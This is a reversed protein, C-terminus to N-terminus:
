KAQQVVIATEGFYIKFVSLSNQGPIQSSELIITKPSHEDHGCADCQELYMGICAQSQSMSGPKCREDNKVHTCIASMLVRVYVQFLM